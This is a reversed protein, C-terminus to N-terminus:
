FTNKKVRKVLCVETSSMARQTRRDASDIKNRARDSAREGLRGEGSIDLDVVIRLDAALQPPMAFAARRRHPMLNTDSNRAEEEANGLDDRAFPLTRRM